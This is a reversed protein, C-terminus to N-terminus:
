LKGAPNQKFVFDYGNARRLKKEGNFIWNKQALIQGYFPYKRSMKFHGLLGLETHHVRCLSSLNDDVDDGGAGRSRLHSPDSPFMGCIDCSRKRYKDLLEQDVHRKPKDLTM